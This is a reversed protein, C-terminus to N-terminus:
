LLFIAVIMLLPAGPALLLRWASWWEAPPAGAYQRRGLRHACYIGGVNVTLNAAFLPPVDAIWIFTGTIAFIAYTSGMIPGFLVIPSPLLDWSMVCAVAVGTIAGTITAVGLYAVASRIAGILGPRGFQDRLFLWGFIVSPLASAYTAPILAPAFDLLYRPDQRLIDIAIVLAAAVALALPVAYRDALRM